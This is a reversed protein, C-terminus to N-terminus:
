AMQGAVKLVPSHVRAALVVGRVVGEAAQHQSVQPVLWYQV